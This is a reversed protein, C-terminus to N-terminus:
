FPPTSSVHLTESHYIVIGDKLYRAVKEERAGKVSDTTTNVAQRKDTNEM